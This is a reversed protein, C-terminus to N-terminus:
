YLGNILRFSTGHVPKGSLKFPVLEGIPFDCPTQFPDMCWDSLDQFNEEWDHFTTVSDEEAPTKTKIRPFVWTEKFLNSEM